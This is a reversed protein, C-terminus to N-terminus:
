KSVRHALTRGEGPILDTAAYDNAEHCHPCEFRGLADEVPLSATAKGAVHERPLVSFRLVCLKCDVQWVLAM